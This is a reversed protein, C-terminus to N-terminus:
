QYCAQGEWIDFFDPHCLQCEYNFKDRRIHWQNHRASLAAQRQHESTRYKALVAQSNQNLGGKTSGGNNGKFGGIKGVRSTHEYSRNGGLPGYKKGLEKALEPYLKKLRFGGRSGAERQKKAAEAYAVVDEVLKTPNMGKPAAYVSKKRNCHFHALQLNIPDDTGGGARPVIHDTSPSAPHPFCLSMDVSGKCIGCLFKDRQALQQLNM